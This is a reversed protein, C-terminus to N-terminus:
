GIVQVVGNVPADTLDRTRPCYIHLHPRTDIDYYCWDMGVDVRQIIGWQVLEDLHAPIRCPDIGPYELLLLCIIEPESFHKGPHNFLLRALRMHFAPIPHDLTELRADLDLYRELNLSISAAALMLERFVAKGCAHTGSTRLRPPLTDFELLSRAAAGRWKTLVRNSRRDVVHISTEAFEHLAVLVWYRDDDPARRSSVLRIRPPEIM